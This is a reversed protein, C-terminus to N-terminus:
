KTNIGNAKNELISFELQTEPLCSTLFPKKEGIIFFRVRNKKKAIKMKVCGKTFDAECCCAKIFMWNLLLPNFPISENWVEGDKKKPIM